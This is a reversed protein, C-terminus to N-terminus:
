TCAHPAAHTCNVPITNPYTHACACMCENTCLAHSKFFFSAWLVSIQYWRWSVESGTASLKRAAASSYREPVAKSKDEEERGLDHVIPESEMRSNEACVHCFSRLFLCTVIYLHMCSRSHRHPFPMRSLVDSWQNQKTSYIWFIEYTSFDRISPVKSKECAHCKHVAVLRQPNETKSQLNLVSTLSSCYIERRLPILSRRQSRGSLSIQVKFIPGTRIRWLECSKPHCGLWETSRAPHCALIAEM